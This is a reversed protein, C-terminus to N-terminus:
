DMHSEANQSQAFASPSAVLTLALLVPRLIQKTRRM